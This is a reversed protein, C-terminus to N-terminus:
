TCEADSEHESEALMLAYKGKETIAYVRCTGATVVESALGYQLLKTMHGDVARWDIDLEHSLQLKNMPKIILRLLAIRTRGGKM